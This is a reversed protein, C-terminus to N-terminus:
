PMIRQNMRVWAHLADLEKQDGNAFARMARERREATAQKSDCALWYPDAYLQGSTAQLPLRLERRIAKNFEIALAASLGELAVCCGIKQARPIFALIEDRRPHPTM